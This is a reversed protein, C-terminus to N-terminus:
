CTKGIELLVHLDTWQVIQFNGDTSIVYLGSFLSDGIVLYIM